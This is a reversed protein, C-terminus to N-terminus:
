FYTRASRGSRIPRSRPGNTTTYVRWTYRTHHHHGRCETMTIAHQARRPPCTEKKRNQIEAAHRKRRYEREEESEWESERERRYPDANGGLARAYNISTPM